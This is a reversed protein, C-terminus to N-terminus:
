AAGKWIGLGILTNTVELAWATLTAGITVNSSASLFSTAQISAARQAVPTAGYFAVKSPVTASAAKAGVVMGDPGDDGIYTPSPM